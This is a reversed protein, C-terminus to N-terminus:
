SRSYISQDLLYSAGVPIKKVAYHGLHVGGLVHRCLWVGGFGGHGLKAEQQFFKAFYGTNFFDSSLGGSSSSSINNNNNNNSLGGSSSSGGGSNNNSAGSSAGGSGGGSNPAATENETATTGAPAGPTILQRLQRFHHPVLIPQRCLRCTSPVFHFRQEAGRSSQISPGDLVEGSPRRVVAQYAPVVLGSSTPQM